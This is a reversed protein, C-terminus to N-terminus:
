TRGPCDASQQALGTSVATMVGSADGRGGGLREADHVAGHEDIVLKSFFRGPGLLRVSVYLLGGIGFLTSRVRIQLGIPGM